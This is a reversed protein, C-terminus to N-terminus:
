YTLFFESGEVGIKYYGAQLYSHRWINRITEPTWKPYKSGDGYDVTIEVPPPTVLKSCMIGNLDDPNCFFHEGGGM